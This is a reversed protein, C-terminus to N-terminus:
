LVTYLQVLTSQTFYNLWSYHRQIFPVEGSLKVGNFSCSVTTNYISISQRLIYMYKKVVESWYLIEKRRCERKLTELAEAM